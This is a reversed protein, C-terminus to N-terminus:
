GGSYRGDAEGDQRGSRAAAIGFLLDQCWDFVLALQRLDAGPGLAWAVAQKGSAANGSIAYYLAQAFAPEPMPANGAMLTDFQQWRM